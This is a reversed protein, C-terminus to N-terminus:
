TPLPYSRAGLRHSVEKAAEIVSPAIDFANEYTIRSVPGSVSVAFNCDGESDFIPAAVCRIGDENEVNDMAWGRQRIVDLEAWLEEPTTITAPTRAPLGTAIVSEVTEESSHALISKGVSTCHMPQTNGVRSFMRVAHPSDIKDIYVVMPPTSRVLHTTERTRRTLDLLVTHMDRDARVNALYRQGLNANRWGLRYSNPREGHELFHHAILPQILRSVTSKNIELASSIESVTFGEGNDAEFHTLIALARRLSVSHNRPTTSQSTM